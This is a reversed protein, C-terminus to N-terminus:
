VHWPYAGLVFGTTKAANFTGMHAHTRQEDDLKWFRWRLRCGVALRALVHSTSPGMCRYVLRSLLWTGNPLSRSRRGRPSFGRPCARSTPTCRQELCAFQTEMHNLQWCVFGHNPLHQCDFSGPCRCAPSDLRPCSLGLLRRCMCSYHRDGPPVAVALEMVRLTRQGGARTTLWRWSAKRAHLPIVARTSAATPTHWHTPAKHTHVSWYHATTCVPRCAALAEVPRTSSCAFPELRMRLAPRDVCHSVGHGIRKRLSQASLPGAQGAPGARAMCVSAVVALGQPRAPLLLARWRPSAARQAQRPRQCQGRSRSPSLRALRAPRDSSSSRPPWRAVAQTRGAGSMCCCRASDPRGASRCPRAAADVGASEVLGSGGAATARSVLGSRPSGGLGGRGNNGQGHVLPRAVRSKPCGAHTTLSGDASCGALMGDGVGSWFGLSGMARPSCPGTSHSGDMAQVLAPIPVCIEEGVVEGLGAEVSQCRRSGAVVPLERASSSLVSFCTRRGCLRSRFNGFLYRGNEVDGGEAWMGARVECSSRRKQNETLPVMHLDKPPKNEERKHTQM